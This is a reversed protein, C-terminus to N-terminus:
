AEVALKTLQEPCALLQKTPQGIRWLTMLIIVRTVSDQVELCRKFEEVQGKGVSISQKQIKKVEHILGNTM